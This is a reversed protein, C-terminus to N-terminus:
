LFLFIGGTWAWGGEEETTFFALASVAGGLSRGGDELVGRLGTSGSVRSRPECWVRGSVSGSISSSVPKSDSSTSKKSVMLSIYLLFSSPPRSVRERLEEDLRSVTEKSGEEAPPARGGIGRGEQGGEM